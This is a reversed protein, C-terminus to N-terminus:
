SSYTAHLTCISSFNIYMCQMYMQVTFPGVSVVLTIINVTVVSVGDVLLSSELEVDPPVGLDPESCCPIPVNMQTPTTIPM